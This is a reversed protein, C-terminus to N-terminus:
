NEKEISSRAAEVLTDVEAWVAGLDRGTDVVADAKYFHKEMGAQRAIRDRIEGESRNGQALLRRVREDVDCRLALLLDFGFTMPVELLLAADVVVMPAGQARAHEVARAARAMIEPHVIANLVELRAHDAFVIRGLARRDVHGDVVVPGFEEAIRRVVKEEKLVEHTIRDGDVHAGGYKGVLHAAVTTKGTGSGGAIGVILTRARKAM